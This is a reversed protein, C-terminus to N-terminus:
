KSRLLIALAVGAILGAGFVAVVSEAPRKKVIKEASAYGDRMTEGVREVNERALDAAQSAYERATEAIRGIAAGGEASVDHLFKDIEERAVGTKRQILGALQQADGKFRSLDDDTLQGWKERIKGAIENWNGQLTQQNAM